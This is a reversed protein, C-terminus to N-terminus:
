LSNEHPKHQPIFSLFFFLVLGGDVFRSKKRNYTTHAISMQVLFVCVCWFPFHFFFLRPTFKYRTTSSPSCTTIVVMQSAVASNVVVVVVVVVLVHIFSLIRAISYLSSDDNKNIVSTLLDVFFVLFLRLLFFCRRKNEM